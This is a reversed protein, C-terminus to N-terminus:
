SSYSTPFGSSTIKLPSEVLGQAQGTPIGSYAVSGYFVTKRGNAFSFKFSRKAKVESAAQAAALATEAPDWQSGFAYEIQSFNGYSIKDINDHITTTDIPKPEGGSASVNTLSSFSTGFTIVAATGSTFTDFNTTDIGELEMTNAGANVNACRVVRENVQFMGQILLLIYDGSTPDTGTYTVVGPNAKSIATVTLATALSSQMAVAVNSWVSPTAM